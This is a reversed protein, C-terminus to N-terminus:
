VSEIHEGARFLKKSGDDYRFEVESYDEYLDAPIKIGYFNKLPGSIQKVYKTIDIQQDGKRAKVSVWESKWLTHRPIILTYLRERYTYRIEHKTFHTSINSLGYRCLCAAAIPITYDENLLIGLLLIIMPLPYSEISRKTRKITSKVSKFNISIYYGLVMSIDTRGFPTAVLMAVVYIYKDLNGLYGAFTALWGRLIVAALLLTMM